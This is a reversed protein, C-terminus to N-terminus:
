LLIGVTIEKMSFCVLKALNSNLILSIMAKVVSPIHDKCSPTPLFNLSDHWSIVAFISGKLSFFPTRADTHTNTHAHTHTLTLTTATTSTTTPFLITTTTTPPHTPTYVGYLVCQYPYMSPEVTYQLMLWHCFYQMEIWIEILNGMPAVLMLSDNTLNIDQYLLFSVGYSSAVIVFTVHRWWVVTFWIM